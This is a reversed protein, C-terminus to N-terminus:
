KCARFMVDTKTDFERGLLVWGGADRLSCWETYLSEAAQQVQFGCTDDSKLWATDTSSLGGAGYVSTFIAAIAKSLSAAVNRNAEFVAMAVCVRRCSCWQVARKLVAITHDNLGCDDLARRGEPSASDVALLRVTNVAHLTKLDCTRRFHSDWHGRSIGGDAPSVVHSSLLKPVRGHGCCVRPLDRCQRWDDCLMVDDLLIPEGQHDDTLLPWCRMQLLRNEATGTHHLAHAIRMEPTKVPMLSWPLYPKLLRGKSASLVITLADSRDTVVKIFRLTQSDPTYLRLHRDIHTVLVWPSGPPSSAM